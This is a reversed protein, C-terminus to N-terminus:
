YNLTAFLAEVIMYVVQKNEIDVSPCNCIVTGRRRYRVPIPINAFIPLMLCLKFQVESSFRTGIDQLTFACMACCEAAM